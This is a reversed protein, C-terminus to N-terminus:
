PAGDGFAALEQILAAFVTDDSLDRESNARYVRGMQAEADRRLRHMSVAVPPRGWHSLRFQWGRHLRPPHYTTFVVGVVVICRGVTAVGRARQVAEAIDITGLAPLVRVPVPRDTNTM